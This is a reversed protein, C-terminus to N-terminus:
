IGSYMAVDVRCVSRRIAEASKANLTYYVFCGRMIEILDPFVTRIEEDSLSKVAELFYQASEPDDLKIDGLAGSVLQDYYQRRFVTSIYQTSYTPPSAQMNDKSKIRELLKKKSQSRTTTAEVFNTLEEHDLGSAVGYYHVPLYSTSGSAAQRIYELGESKVSKQDLFDKIVDETTLTTRVIREPGIAITKSPQVDGVLKLTPAGMVEDFEGERIFSIQSLLNEDILVKQGSPGQLTSSSFDLVAAQSAGAKVLEDIHRMMARVERSKGDDLIRKVEPFKARETRSNYRFIIDGEVLNANQAQYSKRTIIPKDDSQYTYIAGIMKGSLPFIGLEWRIEPSFLENLQQTLKAQDLDDFSKLSEASLGIVTRPKDTIGFFIYGGKANAFGAMTRAYLGISGWTFSEKFEKSVGERTLVYPVGENVEVRLLGDLSTASFPSNNFPAPRAKM